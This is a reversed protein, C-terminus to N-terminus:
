SLHIKPHIIILLRNGVNLLGCLTQKFINATQKARSFDSTYLIVRESLDEPTLTVGNEAEIIM